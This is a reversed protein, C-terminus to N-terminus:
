AHMRLCSRAHWPTVCTGSCSDPTPPSSVSFALSAKPLVAEGCPRCLVPGPRPGGAGRTPPAGSLEATTIEAPPVHRAGSPRAPVAQCAAAPRGIGIGSAAMASPESAAALPFTPPAIPPATSHHCGPTAEVVATSTHMSPPHRAMRAPHHLGDSGRTNTMRTSAAKM